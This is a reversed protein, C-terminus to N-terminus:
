PHDPSEVGGKGSGTVALAIGAATAAGAAVVLWLMKGPHAPAKAVSGGQAANDDSANLLVHYAKGEPITETEGRYSVQAPGRQAYVLLERAGLIQVRVVGRTESIPSVRASCAVIEWGSAASVSLVAIGSQLEAQFEKAGGRSREHLIVSSKESLHLAAQGMLLRLAGDADTSLRDGDYLTTGEAADHSGLSAHSAQAVIGVADPTAGGAHTTLFLTMAIAVLRRSGAM